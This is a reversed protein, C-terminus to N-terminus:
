TAPTSEPPPDEAPPPTEPEPPNDDPAPPPTEEVPDAPQSGDVSPPSESEPTVPPDEAQLDENDDGAPSDDPTSSGTDGSGNGSTPDSSSDGGGSNSNVMQQGVVDSCEGPQTLINGGDVYMCYWEGSTKDKVMVGQDSFINETKITKAVFTGEEDISWNGSASTIAQINELSSSSIRMDLQLIMEQQEKIANVTAALIGRERIGTLENNEYNYKAFWSSVAEVEEAIFGIDSVFFDPDDVALTGDTHRKWDFTRPQLALIEALGIELDERNAKYKGLSTCDGYLSGGSGDWCLPDSGVATNTLVYLDGGVTLRAESPSNDNVGVNGSSNILFRSTSSSQDYIFFADPFASSGAGLTTQFIKTPTEYRTTSYSSANTTELRLQNQSNNIIHIASDPNTTGFGTFGNDLGTIIPSDSSNTTQFNLGTSTGGGKVSLIALPSTTGIGM